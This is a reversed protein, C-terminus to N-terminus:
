EFRKITQEFAIKYDQTDQYMEEYIETFERANEAANTFDLGSMIVKAIANGDKKRGGAELKFGDMITESSSMVRISIRPGKEDDRRYYVWNHGEKAGRLLSKFIKENSIVRLGEDEIKEAKRPPLADILTGEDFEEVDPPDARFEDIDYEVGDVFEITTQRKAATWPSPLDVEKTVEDEEKSDEGTQTTQFEDFGRSDGWRNTTKSIIKRTGEALGHLGQWRYLRNNTEMVEFLKAIMADFKEYEIDDDISATAYDRKLIFLESLPVEGIELEHGGDNDEAVLISYDVVTLTYRFKIYFNEWSSDEIDLDSLLFASVKASFYEALDRVGELRQKPQEDYNGLILYRNGDISKEDIEGTLKTIADHIETVEEPSYGDFIFDAEDITHDESLHNPLDSDTM